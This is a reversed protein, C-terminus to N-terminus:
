HIVHSEHACAREYALQAAIDLARDCPLASERQMLTSLPIADIFEMAIYPTGDANGVAYIQVINPHDLCAAAKAERSFRTVIQPQSRLDDRLVKVAVIRDLSLDLARYVIGMGGRGVEEFIEYNGLVHRAPAPGGCDYM